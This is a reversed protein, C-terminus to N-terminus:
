IKINIGYILIKIINIIKNFLKGKNFIKDYNAYYNSKSEYGVQQPRNPPSYHQRVFREPTMEKM